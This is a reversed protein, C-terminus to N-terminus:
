AEQVLGTVLIRDDEQFDPTIAAGAVLVAKLEGIDNGPNITVATVEHLEAIFQFAPAPPSSIAVRASSRVWAPTLPRLIHMVNRSSVCFTEGDGSTVVGEGSLLYLYVDAFVDKTSVIKLGAVRVPRKPLGLGIDTVGGIQQGPEYARGLSSVGVEGFLQAYAGETVQGSGAATVVQAKGTPPGVVRIQQM